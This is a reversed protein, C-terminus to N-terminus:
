ECELVSKERLKKRIVKGTVTMPLEDLFGIERPYLHKALRTKVFEQLAKSLHDDAKHGAKVVVYAKVIEGRAQDSKGVVGVTAVAPHM